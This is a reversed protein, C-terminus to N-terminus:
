FIRLPLRRPLVAPHLPYYVVHAVRYVRAVARVFRAAQSFKAAFAVAVTPSVASPAM